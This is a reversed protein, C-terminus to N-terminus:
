GKRTHKFKDPLTDGSNITPELTVNIGFSTL